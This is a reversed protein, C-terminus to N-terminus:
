YKRKSRVIIRLSTQSFFLKEKKKYSTWRIKGARMIQRLRAVAAALAKEKISIEKKWKKKINRALFINEYIKRAEKICWKQCLFLFFGLFILNIIWANDAFSLLPLIPIIFYTNLNNRTRQACKKDIRGKFHKYFVSGSKVILFFCSLLKLDLKNVNLSVVLIGIEIQKISSWKEAKSKEGRKQRRPFSIFVVFVFM